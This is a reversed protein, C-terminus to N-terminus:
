VFVLGHDEYVSGTTAPNTSMVQVGDFLAAVPDVKADGASQKTFRIATPLLEIKVNGVCWDMLPQEAHLLTGNALKREATKIANMLAFGQRVGIVFNCESEKNEQTIGIEALADIMEGLGAPDVAVCYLLGADKVREIYEIIGSIDALEDDVVTLDGADAFGQLVSAIKPRRPASGEHEWAVGRHCWAHAWSLWRKERKRPAGIFRCFAAISEAVANPPGQPRSAPTEVITEVRERGLINLGFLDDLGGGDIGIVVLECRRLIEEFTISPDARKEWHVAGAWGDSRVGVGVEVNFHKAVFLQVSAAGEAQKKRLTDALWEPDVAGGQSGDKRVHMLSPNPIYWTAPDRWAEAKMMADPYEYILPLFSRDKILGDRVNRAYELKQKFVGAPRDDSQTSAGITFGEPRAAQSGQAESIINAAAAKKGFLWYEDIFLAISKGGGVVDADAAKVALSSGDLRDIIERTTDSPKYRALLAPDEKVMGYAPLFSNDAVEKTPSLITYEGLARENLILATLMIGAAISSKGNKKAIFLFFERIIQRKSAEDRAGFIVYVFDFVWQECAQGMAPKGPVDVLKLRKFIRLAKSARAHDLPVEPILSQRAVIRDAWDPLATSWEALM